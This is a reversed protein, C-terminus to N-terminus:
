ALEKLVPEISKWLEADQKALLLNTRLWDVPNGIDHRRANLVVAVVVESQALQNLSDTLQIEGGVGPTQKELFGFVNPSLLYRAAVALNSPAKDPSPKEVMGKVRFVGPSVAGSDIAVIGYRQVKDAPVQEVAIVSVHQAPDLKLSQRALNAARIMARTPLEDTSPASFITDGLLCVFSRDGVHHKAQLVAHGLGLQQMQRTAHIRVQNRLRTVSELLKSKGSEALRRELEPALDFHDEIARKERSTVVLVDDCGGAAAEEVVYQIVPKDLVPLLEKPVAKAAPLMRTGFGAAPIVAVHSSHSTMTRNLPAADDQFGRIFCSSFVL